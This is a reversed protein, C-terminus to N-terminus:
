QYRLAQAPDLKAAQRSPYITALFCTVIASLVVITFDLPELRFPVYSIQYVDIPVRVLKYKDALYITLTGLAAGGVTGILGIVLGQFMFIRRISAASSGMTKLIAIDRSKEMVLLILSAVINLAAVMVILGITISIAMKELWLASFLSQNMDAWDQAMYQTGLVEPISDAVSQAAFMDDVRLEIYDPRESGLLRKAVDLHVFAYAEDFELLGLNFIGVVKMRRPTGVSGFPTVPGHMTVIEVTDGLFAGVKRALEHGIVIGNPQGEQPELAALSGSQMSSAIRTVDPELKPVIGKLTIFNEGGGGSIMGPGIVVPAAGVVRPVQRLKAVEAEYDTLGGGGPKFVYVHAASGVIRDRLEGQLGTMLALAILLATVGVMVGLTSILSIMSIFAQKRKALLYRVAIFLEFPLDNIM